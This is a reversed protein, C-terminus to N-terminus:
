SKFCLSNRKKITLFVRSVMNKLEMSVAHTRAALVKQKVRELAANWEFECSLYTMARSDGTIRYGLRVVDRPRDFHQYAM